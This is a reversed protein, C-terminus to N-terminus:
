SLKNRIKSVLGEKIKRSLEEPTTIEKGLITNVADNATKIPTGFSEKNKGLDTEFEKLVEDASQIIDDEKESLVVMNKYARPLKAYKSQNLVNNRINQKVAKDYDGSLREMKQTLETIQIDRKEIESKEALEKEKKENVLTELQNKVDEYDKYKDNLKKSELAIRSDFDSQTFLKNTEKGNNQSEVNEQEEVKEEQKVEEAM